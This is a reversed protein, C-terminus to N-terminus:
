TFLAASTHNVNTGFSDRILHKRLFCTRNGILYGIYIRNPPGM